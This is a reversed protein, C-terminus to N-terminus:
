PPSGAPLKPLIGPTNPEVEEGKDLWLGRTFVFTSRRTHEPLEEMVPVSVSPLEQALKKLKALERQESIFKESQQLQIWDDSPSVSYRGRGIVLPVDGSTARDQQLEIRIRSGPTISIPTDLLFVAFRSRWQRSYSAWGVNDDQLSDAPDLLPEAEDCFAHKFDLEVPPGDNVPLLTAKVRSLVFGLEPSRRASKPDRLLADIRLATMQQLSEPLPAELTFRSKITVAGDTVVETAIRGDGDDQERIQLRTNGTSNARDIPLNRWLNFDEALPKVQEHMIRRLQSLRQSTEAARAHDKRDLPVDLRPLDEDVDGDRTDNFLAMFRYYEDHRIPDYPHAHCQICGFTTAQWVQWTTNVRDIVAAVRFEEDDTGGETNTQTNRHFATALRDDVTPEDLLDGALQKITFQDYPMDENFARIV